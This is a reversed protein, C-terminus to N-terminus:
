VCNSLAVNNFLVVTEFLHTNHRPFEAQFSQHDRGLVVSRERVVSCVTCTGSFVGHQKSLVHVCKKVYRYNM